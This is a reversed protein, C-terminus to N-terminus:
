NKPDGFGPCAIGSPGCFFQREAESYGHDSWWQPDNCIDCDVQETTLNTQPGKTAAWKELLKTTRKPILM